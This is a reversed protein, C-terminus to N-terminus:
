LLGPQYQSATPFGSMLGGLLIEWRRPVYNALGVAFGNELQVARVILESAVDMVNACDAGDNV